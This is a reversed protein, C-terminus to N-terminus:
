RRELYYPSIFLHQGTPHARVAMMGTWPTPTVWLGRLINVMPDTADEPPVFEYVPPASRNPPELNRFKHLFCLGTKRRGRNGGRYAVNLYAFANCGEWTCTPALGGGVTPLGDRNVEATPLYLINGESLYGHEKSFIM